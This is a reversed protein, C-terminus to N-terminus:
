VIAKVFSLMVYVSLCGVGTPIHASRRNATFPVRPCCEAIVDGRRVEGTGDDM